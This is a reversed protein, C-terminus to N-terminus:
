HLGGGRVDNENEAVVPAVAVETTVAVLFQLGGVEVFEGGLACAVGLEIDSGADAGRAAAADDGSVVWWSVSDEAV